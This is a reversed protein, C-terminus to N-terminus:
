GTVLFPKQWHGGVLGRPCASVKYVHQRKWGPFRVPAEEPLRPGGPQLPRDGPKGRVDVSQLLNRCSLWAGMVARGAPCSAVRPPMKPAGPALSGWTWPLLSPRSYGAMPAPNLAPTWLWVTCGVPQAVETEGDAFLPSSLECRFPLYSKMCSHRGARLLLVSRIPVRFM